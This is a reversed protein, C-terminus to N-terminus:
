LPQEFNMKCLNGLGLYVRLYKIPTNCICVGAIHLKHAATLDFAITKDLNLCLGTFCGVFEIHKLVDALQLLNPLFLAIDDAYLSCPNSDFKWWEFYGAECLSYILVQGVLNFLHCSLPCGQRVGHFLPFSVTLWNRHKMISMANTYLLSVWAIYEPLFGMHLLLTFLFLHNVSDFAKWFDLFLVISGTLNTKDSIVDQVSCINTGIFHSKMYATQNPHIISPLLEELHM